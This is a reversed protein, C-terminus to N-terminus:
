CNKGQSCVWIDLNGRTVESHIESKWSNGAFLEDYKKAYM